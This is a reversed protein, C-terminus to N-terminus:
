GAKQFLYEEIDENHSVIHNLILKYNGFSANTMLQTTEDLLEEKIKSFNYVFEEHRQISYLSHSVSNKFDSMFKLLLQIEGILENKIVVNLKIDAYFYQVYEDDDKRDNRDLDKFGNKIRAIDTIINSKKSNIYHTFKRLFLYMSQANTFYLSCRNIDLLKSSSPFSENFYDSQVKVRSREARKIPGRHFSSNKMLIDDNKTIINTINYIENQFIDDIDNANMLLQNLFINCNYHEVPNWGGVQKKSILDFISYPSKLGNRLADQRVNIINNNINEDGFAVLDSWLKGNNQKKLQEIDNKLWKIAQIKSEKEIRILLEYYLLKQKQIPHDWFWINSPIIFMNLWAFGIKNTTDMIIKEFQEIITKFLKCHLIQSPDNKYKIDHLYTMTINLLQECIPSQSEISTIMFDINQEMHQQSMNKIAYQSIGAMADMENITKSVKEGLSAGTKRFLLLSCVAHNGNNRALDILFDNSKVGIDCLFEAMKFYGEKACVELLWVPIIRYKKLENQFFNIDSEQLREKLKDIEKKVFFLFAIAVSVQWYSKFGCEKEWEKPWTKSDKNSLKWATMQQKVLLKRLKNWTDSDCYNPNLKPQYTTVMFEAFESPIMDFLPTEKSEKSDIEDLLAEFQKEDLLSAM